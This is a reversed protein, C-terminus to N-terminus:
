HYGPFCLINYILKHRGEPRRGSMVIFLHASQLNPSFGTAKGDDQGTDTSDPGLGTEKSDPGLRAMMRRDPRTQDPQDTLRDSGLVSM